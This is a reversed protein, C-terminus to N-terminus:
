FGVEPRPGSGGFFAISAHADLILRLRSSRRAAEALFAEVKPRIDRQWDRGDQLYRQRFEDTLLLTDGPAAGVIDSAAGLFSRIAIPLFRDSEVSRRVLLGEERCIRELVDRTLVNLGRVKLQRALEDYRFDSNSATCTLRGVLRAKLNIEERVEDLSRHGDLIRLGDVIARLEEDTALGLHERWLKRVKGTTSKDTSGDFLRETLLSKDHASILPALPDGDKTRYTTLFAFRAGPAAKRRADMLRQLLSFSTAGIFKPDTFDEYGFRGGYEVHWKVQHYEASVREPRSRAISPDHRVVVDDFSKPGDAEFTVQVVCSDPILLNLTM